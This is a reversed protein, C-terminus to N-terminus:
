NINVLQPLLLGPRELAVAETESVVRVAQRRQESSGGAQLERDGSGEKVAFGLIGALIVGPYIGPCISNGTPSPALQLFM